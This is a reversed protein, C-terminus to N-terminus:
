HLPQQELHYITNHGSLAKMSIRGLLLTNGHKQIYTVVNENDLNICSIHASM